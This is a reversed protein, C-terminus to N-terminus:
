IEPPLTLIINLNQKYNLLFVELTYNTEFSARFDDPLLGNKYLSLPGPETNTIKFGEQLDEILIKDATYVSYRISEYTPEFSTPNKVNTVRFRFIEGPDIQTGTTALDRNRFTNAPITYEPLGLTMVIRSLDVSVRCSMINDVNATRGLCQSDESFYTPYPLDIYVFDGSVLYNTTM